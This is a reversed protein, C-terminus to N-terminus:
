SQKEYQSIIKKLSKVFRPKNFNLSNKRCTVVSWKVNSSADIADALSEPSQKKFFLGTQGEKIAEKQGGLAYAIVPIGCAQAEIIAIGFDEEQTVILARANQLYNKLEQRTVKGVFEIKDSALKQLRKKDPGDGIVKLKFPTKEIAKIALDVKKWKTLRTVVVYYNQSKLQWNHIKTPTYFDTDAFPYVVDADRNYNNKVKVAVNHSNAVYHDVRTSAVEDWRLLWNFYKKLVFRFSSHLYSSKTDIDWLFRPTSNIYCVHITKPSTIVSKAFRTTSSVVLDYQSLDFSEFALPYLPLLIKYLKGKFPINQMFSTKVRKVDISQPIKSFNVLSTYIPANPFLDAIIAFLDEAGGNQMFDDHVLCVKMM